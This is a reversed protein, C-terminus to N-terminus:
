ALCRVCTTRVTPAPDDHAATLLSDFVQPHTRWDMSALAEAAFERQSPYLADRLTQMLYQGVRPDVAPAGASAVPTAAPYAGAMAPMGGCAQMSPMQPMPGYPGMAMGGGMPMPGYPGMAMGGGMPMPGYPGMAMMPYGMPVPDTMMPAPGAFANAA